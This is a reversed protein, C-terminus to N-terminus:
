IRDRGLIQIIYIEGHIVTKFFTKGTMKTREWDENRQLGLASRWRLSRSGREALSLACQRHHNEVAKRGIWNLTPM